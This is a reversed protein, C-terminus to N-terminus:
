CLSASLALPSYALRRFCSRSSSLASSSYRYSRKGSILGAVFYPRFMFFGIDPQGFLERLSQVYAKLMYYYAKKQSGNSEGQYWMMGKFAVHRMPHIMNNFLDGAKYNRADNGFIPLPMLAKGEQVRRDAQAHWSKWDALYQNFFVKGEATHLDKARIQPILQSV